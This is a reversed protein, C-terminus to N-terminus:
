EEDDGKFPNIIYIGIIKTKKINCQKDYIPRKRIVFIRRFASKCKRIETLQQKAIPELEELSKRDILIATRKTRTTAFLYTNQSTEEISNYKLFFTRNLEKKNKDIYYIHKELATWSGTYNGIYAFVGPQGYIKNKNM